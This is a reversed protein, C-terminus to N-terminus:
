LLSTKGKSESHKFDPYLTSSKEQCLELSPFFFFLLLPDVYQMSKPHFLSSLVMRCGQCLVVVGLHCELGLIFVGRCTAEAEVVVGIMEELDGPVEMSSLLSPNIRCLEVTVQYLGLFQQLM